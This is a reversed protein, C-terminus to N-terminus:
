TVRSLALRATAFTFDSAGDAGTMSLYHLVRRSTRHRTAPKMRTTPKAM